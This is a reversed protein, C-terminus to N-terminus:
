KLVQIFFYLGQFVAFTSFFDAALYIWDRFNGEADEIPNVDKNDDNGAIGGEDQALMTAEKSDSDNNVIMLWSFNFM